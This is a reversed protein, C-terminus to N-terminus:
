LRIKKGNKFIKYNNGDVDNIIFHDKYPIIKRGDKQRYTQVWQLKGTLDNFAYAKEAFVLIFYNKISFFDWFRFFADKEFPIEKKTEINIILTYGVFAGDGVEETVSVGLLNNRCYVSLLVKYHIPYKTGDEKFVFVKNGFEIIGEKKIMLVESGKISVEFPLAVVSLYIKETESM